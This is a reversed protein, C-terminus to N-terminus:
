PSDEALWDECRLGEVRTFERLNGTILKAGISRAHGAILLDNPGIINGACSLCHKIDAAHVAAERDFELVALRTVFDEVKELAAKPRDSKHVGHMLEHLVITSVALIDVNQQFQAAVWSPRKRIVRICVSTDLMVHAM